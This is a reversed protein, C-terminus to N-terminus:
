EQQAEDSGGRVRGSPGVDEEDEGVIEAPAIQAAVTVGEGLRGVEVPEGGIARQEGLKIDGSGDARGAAATKEGPLNRRAVADVAVIGGLRRVGRAAHAVPQLGAHGVDCARKAGGAVGGRVDAFPMEAVVGVSGGDLFVTEVEDAGALAARRDIGGVGVVARTRGCEKDVLRQLENALALARREVCLHAREDRVRHEVGRGLLQFRECPEVGGVDRVLTWAGNVGGGDGVEVGLDATQEVAQFCEADGVVGDYNKGAVIARLFHRDGAGSVASHAAGTRKAAALATEVLAAHAHRIEHAPGAVHGGGANVVGADEGAEILKGRKRLEGPEGEGGVVHEVALLRAIDPEAVGARARTRQHPFPAESNEAMDDVAARLERDAVGIPFKEEVGVTSTGFEVCDDAIRHLHVVDGRLVGGDDLSEGGLDEGPLAGERRTRAIGAGVVVGVRPGPARARVGSRRKARLLGGRFLGLFLKGPGKSRWVRGM